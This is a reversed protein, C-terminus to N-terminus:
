EKKEKNAPKKKKERKKRPQFIDNTIGPDKNNQPENDGPEESSFGTYNKTGCTVGFDCGHHVHFIRGTEIDESTVMKDVQEKLNRLM